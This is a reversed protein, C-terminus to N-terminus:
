APITEEAVGVGVSREGANLEIWKEGSSARVWVFLLTPLDAPLPDPAKLMPVEDDHVDTLVAGGPLADTDLGEGLMSGRGEGFAASPRGSGWEV